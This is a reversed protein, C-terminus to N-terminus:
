FQQSFQWLNDFIETKSRLKKYTHRQLLQETEKGYGTRVLIPTAGIKAAAKLDSIKDGVYYGSSFKIAPIESECRKFMGVNPKAYFDSKHSSTSYYVADISTCGAEGLLKLLKKHVAEVDDTTIKGKSIGSQNTLIVIQFGLRRLSAIAELSNEIPHFDDTSSIYGKDYNITGDRDLGIVCNKLQQNGLYNIRIM